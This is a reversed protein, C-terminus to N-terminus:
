CLLSGEMMLVAKGRLMVRDGSVECGIAAGRPSAQFGKLENKGLRHAWFPALLCHSSGTAHDEPIGFRPAFYRSLFDFEPLDSTSTVCVGGIPLEAVRALNPKLNRLVTPNEVEFLHNTANRGQLVPQVGIADEIGPMPEYSTVPVAPFSMEILTQRLQCTLEGSLTEFRATSSPVLRGTTWLVHAAALTAHGCLEVEGQPTFWRLNFADRNPCVFATEAQNIEAAVSQMWAEDAPTDLLCVGAPNGSFPGMVFADVLYFPTGM